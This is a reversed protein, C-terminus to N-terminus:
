RCVDENVSIDHFDYAAKKIMEDLSMVKELIRSMIKPACNLGYGMKTLYYHKGKHRVVQHKM